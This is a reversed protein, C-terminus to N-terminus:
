NESNAIRYYEALHRCADVQKQLYPRCQYEIAGTIKDIRLVAVQKVGDITSAYFHNQLFAEDYIAASTKFDLVTKIGDILALLDFRGAFLEGDTVVCEYDIVEVNHQDTWSLFSEFGRRIQEDEIESAQMRCGSSLYNEIATHIATGIDAAEKKKQQHVKKAELLVGDLEGRSITIVDDDPIAARIAEVTIKVAWPVLAPKALIGLITTVSPLSKGDVIYIRGGRNNEKVEINKSIENDLPKIPYVNSKLATNM